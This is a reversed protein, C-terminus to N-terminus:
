KTRCAGTAHSSKCWDRVDMTTEQMKRDVVEWTGHAKGGGEELDEVKKETTATTPRNAILAAGGVGGLVVDNNM